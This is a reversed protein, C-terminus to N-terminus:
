QIEGLTSVAMAVVHSHKESLYELISELCNRQNEDLWGYRAQISQMRNETEGLDAILCTTITDLADESLMVARLLSPLFWRMGQASLNALEDHLYRIGERRLSPTTYIQMHNKIFKCPWDDDSFYMLHDDDPKEVFPFFQHIEAIIEDRSFYGRYVLQM